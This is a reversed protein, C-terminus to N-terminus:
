SGMKQDYIWATFSLFFSDYNPLSVVPKSRLRSIGRFRQVIIKYNKKKTLASLQSIDGSRKAKTSIVPTYNIKKRKFKSILQIDYSSSKVM